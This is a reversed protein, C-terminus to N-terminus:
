TPDSITIGAQNVSMGAVAIRPIQSTDGKFFVPLFADRVEDEVLQLATGIDPAFLQVSDWKRHLSKYLGTYATQPHKEAVVEMIAVLAQWGEMKEELCWDQAGEVEM